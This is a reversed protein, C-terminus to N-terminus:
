TFRIRAKHGVQIEIIRLAIFCNRDHNFRKFLVKTSSYGSRRVSEGATPVLRVVQSSSATVPFSSQLKIKPVHVEQPVFPQQAERDLDNGADLLSAENVAPYSM